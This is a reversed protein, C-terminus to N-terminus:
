INGQEYQDETNWIIPLEIRKNKVLQLVNKAEEKTENVTVACSYWYAKIPIGVKISKKYHTELRGDKYKKRKWFVYIWM